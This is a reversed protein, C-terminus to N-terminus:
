AAARRFARNRRNARNTSVTARRQARATAAAARKSAIADAKAKQKAAHAARGTQIAQILARRYERAVAARERAPLTRFAEVHRKHFNLRGGPITIWFRAGGKKAKAVTMARSNFGAMFDGSSYFPAEGRAMRKAKAGGPRYGLQGRAYGANFRLPGYNAIWWNGVAIGAARLADNWEKASFVRRAKAGLRLETARNEITAPTM